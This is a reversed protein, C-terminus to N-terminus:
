CGRDVWCVRVQLGVSRPHQVSMWLVEVGVCVEIQLGVSLCCVGCPRGTLVEEKESGTETHQPSKSIQKKKKKGEPGHEKKKMWCLHPSKKGEREM